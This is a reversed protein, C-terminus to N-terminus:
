PRRGKGQLEQLRKASAGQNKVDFVADIVSRLEGSLKLFEPTERNMYEPDELIKRIRSAVMDYQRLLMSTHAEYTM